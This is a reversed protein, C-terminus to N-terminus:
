DEFYLTGKGDMYGRLEGSEHEEMLNFHAADLNAPGTNESYGAELGDPDKCTVGFVYKSVLNFTVHPDPLTDQSSSPYATNSECPLVLAATRMDILGYKKRNKGSQSVVFLDQYEAPYIDEYEAFKGTRIGSRTVLEHKRRASRCNLLLEYKNRFHSIASGDACFLYDTIKKGTTDIYTFLNNENFVVAFGNEFTCGFYFRPPIVMRGTSDIYGYKGNLRVAAFGESFFLADEYKPAILIAKTSDCYGWLRGKRYPIYSPLRQGPLFPALIFLLLLLSVARKM